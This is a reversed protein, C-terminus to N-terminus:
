HRQRMKPNEVFNTALEVYMNYAKQRSYEEDAAIQRPSDRGKPKLLKMRNARRSLWDAKDKDKKIFTVTPNQKSSYKLLSPLEELRKAIKVIKSSFKVSLFCSHPYPFSYRKSQSDDPDGWADCAKKKLEAISWHRL